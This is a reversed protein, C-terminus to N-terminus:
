NAPNALLAEMRKAEKLSDAFNPPDGAVVPIIIEFVLLVGPGLVNAPDLLIRTQM